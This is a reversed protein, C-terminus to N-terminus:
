VKLAGKEVISWLLAHRWTISPTWYFVVKCWGKRSLLELLRCHLLSYINQKKLSFRRFCHYWWTKAVSFVFKLMLLKLLLILWDSKESDVWQCFILKITIRDNDDIIKRIFFNYIKNKSYFIVEMINPRFVLQVLEGFRNYVRM